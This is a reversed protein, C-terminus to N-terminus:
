PHLESLCNVRPATVRNGSDWRVPFPVLYVVSSKLFGLIKWILTVIVASFYIMLMHQFSLTDNIRSVFNM